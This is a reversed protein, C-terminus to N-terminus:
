SNDSHNRVHITCVVSQRFGNLKARLIGFKPSPRCGTYLVHVFQPLVWDIRSEILSDTTKRDIELLIQSTERSYEIVSQEPIRKIESSPASRIKSYYNPRKPPWKIIRSQIAQFNINFNLDFDTWKASICKTQKSYLTILYYKAELTMVYRM